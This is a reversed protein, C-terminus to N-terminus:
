YMLLRLKMKVDMKSRFMITLTESDRRTAAKVFMAKKMLIIENVM